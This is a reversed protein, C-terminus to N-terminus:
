RPGYLCRIAQSDYRGEKPNAYTTRCPKSVGPPEQEPPWPYPPQSRRTLRLAFPAAHTLTHCLVADPGARNRGDDRPGLPRPCHDTTEPCADRGLQCRAEPREQQGQSGRWRSRADPLPRAASSGAGRRDPTPMEVGPAYALAHTPRRAQLALRVIVRTAYLDSIAFLM